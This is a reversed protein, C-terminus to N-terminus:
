YGSNQRMEPNNKMEKEPIPLVFKADKVSMENLDRDYRRADFLNHGEFDLELLRENQIEVLTLATLGTARARNRLFNLDNLPASGVSTGAKFNAEARILYMEALRIQPFFQSFDDFKAQKYTEAVARLRYFESRKDRGVFKKLSNKSFILNERFRFNSNKAEQTVAAFIIEPSIKEQYFVAFPETELSYKGGSIVEHANEAAKKYEGAFLCVRALLGACAARNGRNTSNTEPLQPKVKELDEIIKKWVESAALRPLQRNTGSIDTPETPFPVGLEGESFLRMLEQLIFARLFTAEAAQASEPLNRIVINAANVASYSKEWLSLVESHNSKQTKMFFDEGEGAYQM